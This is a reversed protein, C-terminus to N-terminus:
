GGGDGGAPTRPDGPLPEVVEDAFLGMSLDVQVQMTGGHMAGQVVLPSWIGLRANVTRNGGFARAAARRMAEADDLVDRAASDIRADAPRTNQTTTPYCRRVGMQITAVWVVPSMSQSISAPAGSGNHPTMGTVQTWVDDCGEGAPLGGGQQVSALAPVGARALALEERLAVLLLAAAGYPTCEVPIPTSM